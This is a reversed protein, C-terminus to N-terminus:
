KSFFKLTGRLIYLKIFFFLFFNSFYIFLTLSKWFLNEFHISDFLLQYFLLKLRTCLQCTKENGNSGLFVILGFTGQYSYKFHVDTQMLLGNGSSFFKNFIVTKTSEFEKM